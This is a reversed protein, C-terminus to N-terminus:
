RLLSRDIDERRVENEWVKAITAFKYFADTGAIVIGAKGDRFGGKIVYSKFFRFFTAAFIKWASFKQGARKSVENDSYTNIKQITESVSSNALHVLALEKRREPIREVRGDVRPLTHVYPPWCANDKRFFRLIRDPYESHLFHGLIYNKRTLWLGQLDTKEKIRGYLYRRLAEPVIEDSDVVLVWENSASQIAFNRAPEPVECKEHYVIGCNYKQAIELTRDTSYMDCVIIEDFNKVSSLVRDLFRESNFTHIVVSIKGEM